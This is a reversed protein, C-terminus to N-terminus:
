KELLYEEFNNLYRVALEGGDNIIMCASVDPFEELLVQTKEFGLVMATTAWADASACTESIITVSLLSSREPFGTIPNITHSIKTGDKEYFNRYNGSTALGVDSVGLYTDAQNLGAGELPTNIGISWIKGRPNKGKLKMEGGIDVLYNRIGAQELCSAIEDVAYGKAVSSFDLEVQPHKKSLIMSDGSLSVEINQLGIYQQIENVKTSDISEVKKKGSYGFGWYNVLPMVTPDYYGQSFNFFERAIELNDKFYGKGLIIGEASKNFKSIESNSIYTSVSANIAILISDITNQKIKKDDLTIRYYTGMTKGQITEYSPSVKERIENGNCSILFIIALFLIWIRTM